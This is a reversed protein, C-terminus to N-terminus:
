SVSRIFNSRRRRAASLLFIHQIRYNRQEGNDDILPDFVPDRAIDRQLAGDVLKDGAHYAHHVDMIGSGSEAKQVAAARADRKYDDAAHEGNRYDDGEGRVEDGVRKATPARHEHHRAADSVADVTNQVAVHLVHEHELERGVERYEVDRIDEYGDKCQQEDHRQKEASVTVLFLVILIVVVLVVVHKLIVLLVIDGGTGHELAAATFRALFRRLGFLGRAFAALRLILLLVLLILSGAGGAAHLSRRGRSRLAHGNLIRGIGEGLPLAGVSLDLRLTLAVNGLQCAM